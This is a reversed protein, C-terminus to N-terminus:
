KLYKGTTFFYTEEDYEIREVIALRIYEEVTMDNLDAADKLRESLPETCINDYISNYALTRCSDNNIDNNHIRDNGYCVIALTVLILKIKQM